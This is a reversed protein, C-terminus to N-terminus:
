GCYVWQHPVRDRCGCGGCGGSFSMYYWGTPQAWATSLTGSTRCVNMTESGVTLSRSLNYTGAGGTGSGFSLVTPAPASIGVGEITDGVQFTFGAPPTGATLVSGTISGTFSFGTAPSFTIPWNQTWYGNKQCWNGYVEWDTPIYQQAVWAGGTCFGESAAEIFSNTIKVQAGGFSDILYSDHGPAGLLGFCYCGNIFLQNCNAPEIAHVMWSHTAPSTSDSGFACRDLTFYEALTTQVSGYSSPAFNLFDYLFGTTNATPTVFNIGCLRCYSANAAPSLTHGSGGLTGVMIAAMNAFDTPTVGPLVAVWITADAATQIPYGGIPAGAAATWSIGTGGNTYLVDHTEISGDAHVFITPNLATKNPWNASLTASTAGASVAATLSFNTVPLLGTPPPPEAPM